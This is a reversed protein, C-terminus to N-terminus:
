VREARNLLFNFVTDPVRLREDTSYLKRLEDFSAEPNHTLEAVRDFFTLQKPDLEENPKPMGGWIDWPLMEMKNLAAMDRVLEAAIFWLGRMDGVFIGFKSTDAQGSRCRSWADGAVLFRDRPVDLVDHDIKLQERWVEDFQVDVLMWRAQADNWYETITHEEANPPNFYLGFGYRARAPVAKGRLLAV